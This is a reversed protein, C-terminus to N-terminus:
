FLRDQVLVTPGDTEREWLWEHVIEGDADRSQHWDEHDAPLLCHRNFRAGSRSRSEIPDM